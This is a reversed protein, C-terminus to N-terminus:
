VAGGVTASLALGPAVTRSRGTRGSLGVMPGHRPSPGHLGVGACFARGRWGDSLFAICPPGHHDCRAVADANNGVGSRGIRTTEPPGSRSVSPNRARGVRPADP